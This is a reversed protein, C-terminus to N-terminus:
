EERGATFVESIVYLFGVFGAAGLTPLNERVVNMMVSSFLTMPMVAFPVVALGNLFDFVAKDARWCPATRGKKFYRRIPRVFICLAGIVFTVINFWNGDIGWSALM